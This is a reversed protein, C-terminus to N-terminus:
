PLRSQGPLVQVHEKQVSLLQNPNLGLIDLITPAVQYNQVPQNVVTGGFRATGISAGNVVILAAHTDDISFGGHEM